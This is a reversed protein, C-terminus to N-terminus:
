NLHTVGSVQGEILSLRRRRFLSHLKAPREPPPPPSCVLELTFGAIMQTTRIRTVFVMSSCAQDRRRGNLMFKLPMILLPLLQAYLQVTHRNQVPRFPLAFLSQEGGTENGAFFLCFPLLSIFRQSSSSTDAKKQSREHKTNM